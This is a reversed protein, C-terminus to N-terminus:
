TSTLAVSGRGRSARSLAASGEILEGLFELPRSEKCNAACELSARSFRPVSNRRPREGSSTSAPARSAASSRTLDQQECAIPARVPTYRCVKRSRTSVILVAGITSRQSGGTCRMARSAMAASIVASDRDAIQKVSIQKQPQRRVECSGDPIRPHRQNSHLFQRM